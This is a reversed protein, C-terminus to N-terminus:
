RGGKGCHWYTVIFFPILPFLVLPTVWVMVESSYYWDFFSQPLILLAVILVVAPVMVVSMMIVDARYPVRKLWESYARVPRSLLEILYFM